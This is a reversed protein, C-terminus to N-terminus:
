PSSMKRDLDHHVDRYGPLIVIDTEWLVSSLAANCGTGARRLLESEGGRPPCRSDMGRTRYM